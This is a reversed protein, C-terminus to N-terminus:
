QDDLTTYAYIDQNDHREHHLLRLPTGCENCIVIKPPWEYSAM